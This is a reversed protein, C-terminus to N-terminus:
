KQEEHNNCYGRSHLLISDGYIKINELKTRPVDDRPMNLYIHDKYKELLEKLLKIEKSDM